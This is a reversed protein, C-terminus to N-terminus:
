NSRYEKVYIRFLWILSGWESGFILELDGFFEGFFNVICFGFFWFISCFHDFVSRLAVVARMRAVLVSLEGTFSTGLSSWGTSLLSFSTVLFWCIRVLWAWLFCFVDALTHHYDEQDHKDVVVELPAEFLESSSELPDFFVGM